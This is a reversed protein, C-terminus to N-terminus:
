RPRPRSATPKSPSDPKAIQTVYMGRVDTSRVIGNLTQEGPKSSPVWRLAVRGRADTVARAPTVTGSKSSFSLPADPIPNGYVDTVIAQLKKARTRSRKDPPVDDFSLNAVAGPTAFATLKLLKKIGDVQVTLTHGGASRGLTWRTRAFGLSDARLATDPVSGGSLSIVLSTHAVGNGNGDVVRLVVPQKLMAGVRARQRDGSVVAVEVPRGALATARVTVPPIGRGRGALGGSVQARVRQTGARKSLTWRARAVGLTDTRAAMAEVQGDLATWQVPVDALARGTSDTVRVAISDAIVDGARARLHEVVAAVRTNSAVPDSEAVIAIASDVNEVNAFLTQRGPYDGLTWTTRARGGADTLTAAPDVKGAGGGDLRFSVIKGAAPAGRRTVVRVVVPQPLARGALARQNAGSVLDIAAATAVVSIPLYGAAGEIKASAVSRGALRGRLVGQSDLAAVSSDAIHWAVGAQLIRHGRADLARARLQIDAGELLVVGTDGASSSVVVGAVRQRVVIRSHTVLSGVIVSVTTQGPGRAIVSGDPGTTAVTSDGTTWVPRAGILISGYRDTITAAYRVTDGIASATDIPPDVRVAAAGLNGISQHAESQGLVGYSYLASIMSVIAAVTSAAVALGKHASHFWSSKAGIRPTQRM